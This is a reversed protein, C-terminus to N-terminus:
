AQLVELHGHRAYDLIEADRTVLIADHEIATAVIIRDSPDKFGNGPLRTSRIAISPTLEALTHGPAGLADAVWREIPQDLAIRGKAELIALEWVSIAPVLVGDREEAKALQDRAMEALTTSGSMAWIWAHTDLVIM